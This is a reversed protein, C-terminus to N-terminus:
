KLLIILGSIGIYTYVLYRFLRGPIRRFVFAGISSGILVGGLGFLFDVGVAPTLFGNLARSITMTLNGLLFYCQVMAM